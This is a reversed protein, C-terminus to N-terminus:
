LKKPWDKRATGNEKKGKSVRTKGGYVKKCINKLLFIRNKFDKHFRKHYFGKNM